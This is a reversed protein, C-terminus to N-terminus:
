TAASWIAASKKDATERKQVEQNARVAGRGVLGSIVLATAAAVVGIIV